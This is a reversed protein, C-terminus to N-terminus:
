VFLSVVWWVLGLTGALVTSALTVPWFVLAFWEIVHLDFGSRQERNAGQLRFKVDAPVLVLWLLVVPVTMCLVAPHWGIQIWYAIPYGLFVVHYLLLGLFGPIERNDFGGGVERYEAPKARFLWAPSALQWWTPGSMAAGGVGDGTYWV